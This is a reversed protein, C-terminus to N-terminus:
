ASIPDGGTATVAAELDPYTTYIDHLRRCIDHLDSHKFFRYFPRTDGEHAAYRRGIIYALPSGDMETHLEGAKKLIQKRNGYAIWATLFGSIEIDQKATFRHPFSVPDAPIFGPTDYEAAWTRLQEITTQLM